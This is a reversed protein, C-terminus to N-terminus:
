NEGGLKRKRLILLVGAMSCMLMLSWLGVHSNDGTQPLVPTAMVDLTFFPSIAAQTGQEGIAECYYVFGDNKSKVVSTTYSPGTAGSIQVFGNGDHRDIYWQYSVANQATVTMTATNGEYVAVTQDQTPSTIVPASVSEFMAVLNRDTVAQFTVDAQRSVEVGNETWCVFRYGNNESASITVSTNTPYDGGGTVIGGDTPNASVQITCMLQNLSYLGYLGYDEQTRTISLGQTNATLGAVPAIEKTVPDQYLLMYPEGVDDASWYPLVVTAAIAETVRKEAQLGYAYVPTLQRVTGQEIKYKATELAFAADQFQKNTTEDTLAPEWLWLIKGDASQGVTEVIKVTITTNTGTLTATRVQTTVPTITLNSGDLVASVVAEDSSTLATPLTYNSLGAILESLDYTMPATSGAPILVTTVLKGVEQTTVTLSAEASAFLKNQNSAPMHATITYALNDTLGTWVLATDTFVQDTGNCSYVAGAAGRVTITDIGVTVDDASLAPAAPRLPIAVAEVYSDGTGTVGKFRAYIYQQTGGFDSIYKTLGFGRALEATINTTCAEDSFFEVKGDHDTLSEQEYDIMALISAETPVDHLTIVELAASVVGEVGKVRRIVGYQTMPELNDFVLDDQWTKGGDISYEYVGDTPAQLTITDKTVSDLTPAALVTDGDNAKVTVMSSTISGSYLQNGTVMYYYLGSATPTYSADTEGPIAAGNRYWQCTLMGATQAATLTDGSLKIYLATNVLAETVETGTASGTAVKASGSLLTQPMTWFRNLAKEQIAFTSGYLPAAAENWNLLTVDKSGYTMPQKGTPLAAFTVDKGDIVTGANATRAVSKYSKHLDALLVGGVKIPMTQQPATLVTNQIITVDTDVTTASIACVGSEALIIPTGKDTTKITLADGHAWITKGVDEPIASDAVAQVTRTRLSATEIDGSGGDNWGGVGPNIEVADPDKITQTKMGGGIGTGNVSRAVVRSNGSITINVKQPVYYDPNWVPGSGIAAGDTSSAYVTSDEILIEAPAYETSSFGNHGTGIGAAYGGYATVTSGGTINITGFNGGIASKNVRRSTTDKTSATATVVSGEGINITAAGGIPSYLFSDRTDVTVTSRVIRIESSYQDLKSLWNSGSDAVMDGGLAFTNVGSELSGTNATITVTSDEILLQGEKNDMRLGLPADNTSSSYAIDVTIHCGNIIKLDKASVGMSLHVEGGDFVVTGEQMDFRQMYLKSGQESSAVFTTTGADTTEFWFKPLTCEGEYVVTMAGSFPTFSNRANDETWNLNKLTVTANSTLALLSKGGFSLPTASDGVVTVNGLANFLNATNREGSFSSAYTLDLTTGAPLAIASDWYNKPYGETGVVYYVTNDANWGAQPTADAAMSIGCMLCLVIIALLGIRKKMRRVKDERCRCYKYLIGTICFHRMGDTSVGRGFCAM